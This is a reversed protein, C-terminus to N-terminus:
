KQLLSRSFVKCSVSCGYSYYLRNKFNDLQLNEIPKKILKSRLKKNLNNIKGKSMDDVIM